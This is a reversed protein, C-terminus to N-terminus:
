SWQAVVLALANIYEDKKAKLVKEHRKEAMKLRVYNARQKLQGTQGVDWYVSLKNCRWRQGHSASAVTAQALHNQTAKTKFIAACTRCIARHEKDCM